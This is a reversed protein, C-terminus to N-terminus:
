LAEKPRPQTFPATPKSASPALPQSKLPLRHNMPGEGSALSVFTLGVAPLPGLEVATPIM